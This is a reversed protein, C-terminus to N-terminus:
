RQPQPQPFLQIMQAAMQAPSEACGRLIWDAIVAFLGFITYVAPARPQRAAAAGAAGFRHRLIRDMMTGYLDSHLVSRLFGQREKWYLFVRELQRCATRPAEDRGHPGVFLDFDFILFDTAALFVDEKCEFYRYFSKRPIDAKRCLEQVTIQQFTQTQMLDVLCAVIHRQRHASEPTKCDKYM